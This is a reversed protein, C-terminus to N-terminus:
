GGPFLRTLLVSILGQGATYTLFLGILEFTSPRQAEVHRAIWRLLAFLGMIACVGVFFGQWSLFYFVTSGQTSVQPRLGIGWWGSFDISWAAALLAASGIILATAIVPSRPRDLALTRNGGWACGVALVYMASVAILGSEPPAVWSEPARSWLFVHSFMTMILIMSAVILTIVTAWWGHSRPGSMYTPVMIGAGIDVLPQVRPRDLMWCWQFLCYVTLVASVASAAYAQITLLLFAGATFAAAWVHWGSPRPMRIVYQPEATLPSTALTERDGSQGTGVPRRPLTLQFPCDPVDLRYYGSFAM